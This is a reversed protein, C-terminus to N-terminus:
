RKRRIQERLARERAVLEDKAQQIRGMEALLAEEGVLVRSGRKRALLEQLCTTDCAAEFAAAFQFPFRWPTKSEATWADLMEKSISAGALESMKAAVQYRSAPTRKLADSLTHRLEADYDLSGGTPAPPRPVEFLDLTSTDPSSRRM